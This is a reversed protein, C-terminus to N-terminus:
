YTQPEQQQEQNLHPDKGILRMDRHSENPNYKSQYLLVHGWSRMTNDHASDFMSGQLSCECARHEWLCWEYWCSLPSLSHKKCTGKSVSVLNCKM